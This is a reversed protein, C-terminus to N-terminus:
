RSASPRCCNALTWPMTLRRVLDGIIDFALFASWVAADLGAEGKAARAKIDANTESLAVYAGAKGTDILRDMQRGLITLANTMYPEFQVMAKASFVHAVYKRKRAHGARDRTTFIGQEINDFAYYFESKLFGNGHGL